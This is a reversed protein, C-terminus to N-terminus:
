GGYIPDDKDNHDATYITGSDICIATLKNGYCCGTDIGIKNSLFQVKEFPTHGFVIRKPLQMGYNIFKGRIWLLDDDIQYELEVEPDIGAHVFMYDGDIHYLPLSEMWEVHEKSVRPLNKHWEDRADADFMPPSVREAESRTDYSDITLGGGNNMWSQGWYGSGTYTDICMKEHNGMLAIAQGADTLSKVYDVVQKSHPGRDIYDGIFILKDGSELPLKNMLDLLTYFCGHIDGVAFVRNM